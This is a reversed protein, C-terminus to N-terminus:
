PLVVAHDKTAQRVVLGVLAVTHWGLAAGAMQGQLDQLVLHLAVDSECDRAVDDLNAAHHTVLHAWQGCKLWVFRKKTQQEARANATGTASPQQGAAQGGCSPGM